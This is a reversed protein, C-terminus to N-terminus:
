TEKEKAYAVEYRHRVALIDSLYNKEFEDARNNWAYICYNEFLMRTTGNKEFVGPSLEGPIGLKDSLHSAANRTIASVRRDTDVDNWTIRCADRCIEELTEYM